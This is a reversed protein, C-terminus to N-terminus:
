GLISTKAAAFKADVLKVFDDDTKATTDDFLGNILDNVAARAKGALSYVPSMFLNGNNGCEEDIAFVKGAYNNKKEAYSSEYTVTGKGADILTKLSEVDRSSSRLPFYNTQAALAAGNEKNTLFDYFKLSADVEAQDKKKFFCLSPGQSLSRAKSSASYAPVSQWSVSYGDSAMWPAGTTSALIAFCKGNGFITSPYEHSYSNIMPFQNKTALLGEHNWKALQIALNKAEQSNVFATATVPNSDNTVFPIGKSELLTIFLNAADEYIVPCDHLYGDADRENTFVGPFDAVWSRALEMLGEFSTPNNYAKKGEKAEPAVYSKADVGAKQGGVCTMVEKNLMLADTSKSYPLSYFKDGYQQKEVDLYYKSFDKDKYLENAHATVDVLSDVWQIAYTGYTSAIHPVDGTGLGSSVASALGGYDNAYNGKYVANVKIHPNAAQFEKIVGEVYHFAAYNGDDSTDDATPDPTYTNWWTITVDKEQSSQATSEASKDASSSTSSSGGGCGALAAVSVLSLALVSLKNTKM